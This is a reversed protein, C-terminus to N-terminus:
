LSQALGSTLNRLMRAGLLTQEPNRIMTSLCFKSLIGGGNRRPGPMKDIGSGVKQM